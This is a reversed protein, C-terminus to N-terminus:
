IRDHSSLNITKVETTELKKENKEEAEILQNSWYTYTLMVFVYAQILGIMVDFYLHFIPTVLGGFTSGLILGLITPNVTSFIYQIFSYFLGIIMAGSFINGTLRMSISLLPTIESIISLPNIMIPIEKRHYKIKVTFNKLYSLRQHKFGMYIIGIFTILGLSLSVTISSTPASLGILPLLNAVSIYLILVLFYPTIKKYREGLLEVTLNEFSIVLMEVLLVYGTPAKEPNQKRAKFYYAFVFGLIIVLTIPITIVAATPVMPTWALDPIPKQEWFSNISNSFENIPNWVIEQPSM